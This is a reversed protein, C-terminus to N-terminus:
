KLVGKGFKGFYAEVFKRANVASGRTATLVKTGNAFFANYTKAGRLRSVSGFQLTNPDQYVEYYDFGFARLTFWRM